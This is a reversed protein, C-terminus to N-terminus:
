QIRYVEVLAVGTAGEKGLVLCTYNGPTLTTLIASKQGRWIPAATSSCRLTRPPFQFFLPM